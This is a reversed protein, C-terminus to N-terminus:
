NFGILQIDFTLASNAPIKGTAQDQYGINSPIFLKIRGGAGIKPIGIKWGIILNDLKPFYVLKDTSEFVSDTAILKGTYIVGIGNNVTPKTDSGPTLIQYYVGSPDRTATISNKALYAQIKLEDEAAHAAGDYTDKNSKKCASLATVILCFYLIYKKMDSASM